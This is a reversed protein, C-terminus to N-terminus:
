LQLLATIKKVLKGIEKKNGNINASVDLIQYFLQYSADDLDVIAGLSFDFPTKNVVSLFASGLYKGIFDGSTVRSLLIKEDLIFKNVGQPLVIAPEVVRAKNTINKVAQLPEDKKKSSAAEPRKKVVSPLRKKLSVEKKLKKISARKNPIAERILDDMWAQAAEPEDKSVSVLDAATSTDKLHVKIFEALEPKANLIILKNHILSATLGMDAAADAVSGKFYEDIYNRWFLADDVPNLPKNFRPDNEAYQIKRLKRLDENDFRKVRALIDPWELRRAAETRREGTVIKFTGDNMLRYCPLELMGVSAINAAFEEIGDLVDDFSRPQGEDRFVLSLDVRITEGDEFLQKLKPNEEGQRRTRIIPKSKAPSAKASM